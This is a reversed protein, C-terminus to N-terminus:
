NSQAKRANVAEELLIFVMNAKKRKEARALDVVEKAFPFDVRTSLTEFEPELAETRASQPTLPTLPLAVGGSGSRRRRYIKQAVQAAM